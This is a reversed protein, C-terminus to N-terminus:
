TTRLQRDHSPNLVLDAGRPSGAINGRGLSGDSWGGSLGAKSAGAPRAKSELWGDIGWALGAEGVVVAEGAARRGIPVTSAAATRAAARAEPDVRATTTTVPGAFWGVGAGADALAVVVSEVDPPVVGVVTWVVSMVATTAEARSDTTVIV